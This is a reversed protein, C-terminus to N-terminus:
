YGALWHQEYMLRSYDGLDEERFKAPRRKFRKRIANVETEISMQEILIRLRGVNLGLAEASPRSISGANKEIVKLIHDQDVEWPLITFNDQWSRAVYAALVDRSSKVFKHDQGFPCGRPTAAVVSVTPALDEYLYVLYGAGRYPALGKLRGRWHSFIESVFDVRYDLDIWAHHDAWWELAWLHIHNHSSHMIPEPDDFALPSRCCAELFDALEPCRKRTEAVLNM